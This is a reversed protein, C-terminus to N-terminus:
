KFQRAMVGIRNLFPYSSIMLNTKYEQNLWSDNSHIIFLVCLVCIIVLIAIM